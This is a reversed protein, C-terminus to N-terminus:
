LKIGDRRNAKIDILFPSNISISEKDISLFRVMVGKRNDKAALLLAPYCIRLRFSFSFIPLCEINRVISRNKM